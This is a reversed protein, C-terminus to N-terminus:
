VCLSVLQDGEVLIRHAGGRLLQDLRLAAGRDRHAVQMGVAVRRVLLSGLRNDLLHIGANRYRRRGVKMLTPDVM